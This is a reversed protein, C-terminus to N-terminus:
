AVRTYLSEFSFQGALGQRKLEETDTLFPIRNGSADKLKMRRFRKLKSDDGTRLYKQVAADYKGIESAAEFGRVAIEKLGEPTPMVLVRLVRENKNVTYKGNARKRLASGAMKVVTKQNIGIDRAAKQLSIESSQM